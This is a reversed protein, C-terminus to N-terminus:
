FSSYTLDLGPTCSLLLALCTEAWFVQTLLDAAPSMSETVACCCHRWYGTCYLITCYLVATTVGSQRWVCPVHHATPLLPVGTMHAAAVLAPFSPENTIVSFAGVLAKEQNFAVNNLCYSLCAKETIAFRRTSRRKWSWSGSTQWRTFLLWLCLGNFGRESALFVSYSYSYSPVHFM